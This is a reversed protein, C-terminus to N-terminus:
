MAMSTLPRETIAIRRGSRKSLVHRIVLSPIREAIASRNGYIVGRNPAVAASSCTTTLRIMQRQGQVMLCLQPINTFSQTTRAPCTGISTGKLGIVITSNDKDAYIHGRLGDGEWGFSQSYNFGGKVDQWEGTFPKLTYADLTMKAFTLITEKDTVNPGPIEEINWAEADLIQAQGSERATALHTEVASLRRDVLRQIELPRSRARFFPPVQPGDEHDRAIWIKM